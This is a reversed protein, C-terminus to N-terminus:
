YRAKESGRPSTVKTRKRRRIASDTEGQVARAKPVIDLDCYCTLNQPLLGLGHTTSIYKRLLFLICLIILEKTM